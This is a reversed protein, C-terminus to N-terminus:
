ALLEDDDQMSMSEILRRYAYSLLSAHKAREGKDQQLPRKYDEMCIGVSAFAKQLPTQSFPDFCMRNALDMLIATRQKDPFKVICRAVYLYILEFHVNNVAQEFPDVELPIIKYVISGQADEILPLLRQDRRIADIYCHYAIVSSIKEISDIMRVEGREVRGMYNVTKLLAEQVIDEIIEKRQKTWVPVRSNYVWRTVRVHLLTSIEAWKEDSFLQDSM